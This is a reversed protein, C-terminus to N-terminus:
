ARLNFVSGVGGSLGHTRIERVRSVLPRRSAAHHPGVGFVHAARGAPQLETSAAPTVEHQPGRAQEGRVPERRNAPKSIFSSVQTGSAAALSPGDDQAFDCSGRQRFANDRSTSGAVERLIVGRRELRRSWHPAGTQHAAPPSCARSLQCGARARLDGEVVRPRSGPAGVGLTVPSEGTPCACRPAARGRGQRNLRAKAEHRVM